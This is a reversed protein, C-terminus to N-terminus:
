FLSYDQATTLPLEVIRGVFYPMVTCCGGRQVELHGANPVSMDYDVELADYWEPRRYLVGSRFGRAGFARAYANIRRARRGFEDRDSFLRRDHDLDHINVEFGRRRIEELLGPTVEYRDEPILQFSARLGHAEDMDMLSRCAELGAVSEVDHTLIVASPAGEPW